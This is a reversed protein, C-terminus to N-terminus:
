RLYDVDSTLHYISSKSENFRKNAEEVGAQYQSLGKRIHNMERESNTTGSAEIADESRKTRHDVSTRLKSRETASEDYRQNLGVSETDANDIAKSAEPSLETHVVKAGDDIATMHRTPLPEVSSNARPVAITMNPSKPPIPANLPEQAAMDRKIASAADEAGKVFDRKRHFFTDSETVIEM